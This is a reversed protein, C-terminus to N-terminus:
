GRDGERERREEQRGRRGAGRRRVPLEFLVDKRSGLSVKERDVLGRLVPSPMSAPPDEHQKQPAEDENFGIFDSGFSEKESKSDKKRQKMANLKTRFSGGPTSSESPTLSLFCSPPYKGLTTYKGKM